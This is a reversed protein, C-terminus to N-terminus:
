YGSRVGCGGGIVARAVVCVDGIKRRWSSCCVEGGIMGRRSWWSWCVVGGRTKCKACCVVGGRAVALVVACVSSRAMARYGAKARDVGGVVLVVVGGAGEGEMVEAAFLCGLASWKSCASRM